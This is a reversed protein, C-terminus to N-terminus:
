LALPHTFQRALERPWRRAGRRTLVNPGFVVLRRDAERQSLGTRSARLDRLLLEVPETGDVTAVADPVSVADVTPPNRTPMM